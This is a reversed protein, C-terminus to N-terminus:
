KPEEIFAYCLIHTLAFFIDELRGMHNSPVV